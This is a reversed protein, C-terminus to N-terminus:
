RSASKRATQLLDNVLLTVRGIEDALQEVDRLSQDVLCELRQRGACRRTRGLVHLSQLFSERLKRREATRFDDLM